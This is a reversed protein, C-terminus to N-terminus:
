KNWLKTWWSDEPTQEHDLSQMNNEQLEDYFEQYSEVMEKLRENEKRLYEAENEQIAVQQHFKHEVKKEIKHDRKMKNHNNMKNIVLYAATSIVFFLLTILASAERMKKM